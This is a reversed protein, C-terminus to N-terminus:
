QQNPVPPPPPPDPVPTPESTQVVQKYIHQPQVQWVVVGNNSCRVKTVSNPLGWRGGTNWGDVIKEVTAWLPGGQGYLRGARAKGGNTVDIGGDVIQVKDGVSVDM